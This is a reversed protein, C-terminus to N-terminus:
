AAPRIRSGGYVSAFLHLRYTSSRDKVVIGELRGETMAEVLSPDPTVVPSLEYPPEFAKAVLELRARRDQWPLPRLDVGALYPVDFVVFRIADRRRRSGQLAAMTGAFREAILEGDLVTGRGCSRCDGPSAGCRRRRAASKSASSAGTM